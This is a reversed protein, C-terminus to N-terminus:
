QNILIEENNLKNFFTISDLRSGHLYCILNEIKILEVIEKLSISISDRGINKGLKTRSEFISIAELQKQKILPHLKKIQEKPVFIVATPFPKYYEFFSLSLGDYKFIYERRAPDNQKDFEMKPFCSMTLKKNKNTGSKKEIHFYGDGPASADDGTRGITKKISPIFDKLIELATVERYSYNDILNVGTIDVVEKMLSFALELKEKINLNSNAIVQTKM